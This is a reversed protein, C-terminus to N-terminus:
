QELKQEALHPSVEISSARSRRTAAQELRSMGRLGHAGMTLPLEQLAVGVQLVNHPGYSPNEGRLLKREGVRCHDELRRKGVSLQAIWRELVTCGAAFHGLGRNVEARHRHSRKRLSAHCVVDGHVQWTVAACRCGIATRHRFGLSVHGGTSLFITSSRPVGQLGTRRKSQRGQL